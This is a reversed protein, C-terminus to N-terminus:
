RRFLRRRRKAVVSPRDTEVIEMLRAEDLLDWLRDMGEDLKVRM